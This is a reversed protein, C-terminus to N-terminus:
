QPPTDKTVDGYFTKWDAGDNFTDIDIDPYKPDSFLRSNQKWKLYGMMHLDCEFHGKHTYALYSSMLSCETAIEIRGIEVMWRMVGIMTQYYSARDTDLPDTMDTEPRYGVVFPNPAMKTLYYKGDFNNKLFIDCKKCAEQVYKSPSLTWCWVGNAALTYKLNAGLYIEPDGISSPKLKFYKDIKMLTTMADHHLVLVYDVYCLIYSYYKDRDPDIEPKM